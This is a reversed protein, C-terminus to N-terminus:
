LSPTSQHAFVRERQAQCVVCREAEPYSGLREVGIEGGCDGCIDYRGTKIRLLAREIRGLKQVQRDILTINLDALWDAVAAEGSDRVLGALESYPQEDVALLDARIDERLRAQRRELQQKFQNLQATTLETM